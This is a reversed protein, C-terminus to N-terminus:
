GKIHVLITNQLRLLEVLRPEISALTSDDVLDVLLTVSICKAICVAVADHLALLTDTRAVVAHGTGFLSRYGLSIAWLLCLLDKGLILSDLLRTTIRLRLDLPVVLM